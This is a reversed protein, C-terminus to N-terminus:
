LGLFILNGFKDSWQVHETGPVYCSIKTPPAFLLSTEVNLYINDRIKSAHDV